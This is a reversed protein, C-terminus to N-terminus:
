GRAARPADVRGVDRREGRRAVSATSAARRRRRCRAASTTRRCRVASRRCRCRRRGDRLLPTSRPSRGAPRDAPRRGQDRRHPRRAPAAFVGRAGSAQAHDARGAAVPAVGPKAAVAAASPQAAIWGREGVAVTRAAINIVPSLRLVFRNSPRFSISTKVPSSVLTDREVRMSPAAPSEGPPRSGAAAPLRSASRSSVTRRAVRWRILSM